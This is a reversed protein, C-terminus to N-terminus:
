FYCRKLPNLKWNIRNQQRLIHAKESGGVSNRKVVVSKKWAGLSSFNYKRQRMVRKM